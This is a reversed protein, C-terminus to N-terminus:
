PPCKFSLTMPFRTMLLEARVDTPPKWTTADRVPMDLSGGGTSNITVATIEPGPMGADPDFTDTPPNYTAIVEANFPDYSILQGERGLDVTEGVGAKLTVGYLSHETKATFAAVNQCGALTLSSLDTATPPATFHDALEPAIPTARYVEVAGTAPALAYLTVQERRAITALPTGQYNGLVKEIGPTFSDGVSIPLIDLECVNKAGGSCNKSIGVDLTGGTTTIDGTSGRTGLLTVMDGDLTPQTINVLQVSKVDTTDLVTLTPVTAGAQVSHSIYAIRDNMVAITGPEPAPLATHTSLTIWTKSSDDFYRVQLSVTQGTPAPFASGIFVYWVDKGDAGDYGLEVVRAGGKLLEKNLETGTKPDIVSIVGQTRDIATGGIVILGNTPIPRVLGPQGGTTAGAEGGEGNATGAANVTSGGHGTSGGNSSGGQASDGGNASTGGTDDVYTRDPLSCGAQYTVLAVFCTGLTVLAHATRFKKGAMVVKVRDKRFSM